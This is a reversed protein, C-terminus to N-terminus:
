RGESRPLAVNGGRSVAVAFRREIAAGRRALLKTARMVGAADTGTVLWVVNRDVAFAALLGSGRAMARGPAGDAFFPTLRKGDKSFQAFAGNSEGSSTLDPVGDLGEIENWTGVVIRADSRPNEGVGAAHLQGRALRCAGGRPEACVLRVGNAELPRPYAGVIAGGTRITQWPHFDWQVVQGPLLRMSAAGKRAEIGDIHVLWSSDGDEKLGDISDVYRGGFKTTVELESQLQRMATLGSTSNVSRSAVVVQTGFDRTVVLTTPTGGKRAGCGAGLVACAALLALAPLRTMLAAQAERHDV